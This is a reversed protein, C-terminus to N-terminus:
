AKQLKPQKAIMTFAAVPRDEIHAKMDFREILLAKLMGRLTDFDVDDPKVGDRVSAKAAIDYRASDASKPLGVIFDDNNGIDWALQILQKLPFNQIDLRGNQMRGNQGRADPSSPKITAVEFDAPPPIPIKTSVGALNPTPTQNVSDVVLVPLAIKQADLK